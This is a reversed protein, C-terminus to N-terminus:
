SRVTELYEQLLVTQRRAEEIDKNGAAVCLSSGIRSLEDFGYGAGSGKMQHGLTALMAYDASEIASWLFILDKRRRELYGPVLAQVESPLSSEKRRSTEPPLGGRSHEAIARLLAAKRIPKTLHATCGVSLSKQAEERLAHASLALVPVPALGQEREWDRIARTASYGDMVPMQVDMLVLDYKSSQFKEVAIQGNEAIDLQLPSGDAYARLLYINDEADEAVLVRLPRLIIENPRDVRAPEDQKERSDDPAVRFPISFFFTSGEGLKSEVSITGGMLEVLRQSITLGLGTGGYKRTISPDVQIFRAFVADLKDEPIGIGTDIVSFRVSARGNESAAGETRVLVGGESTFKLANGILNMLIQRLRDPDGILRSPVTPAMDAALTLGRSRARVRMIDLAKEVVDKAEFPEEALELRGAEVKSLDLVDNILNLLKAGAGQFIAVYKRQQENLPTESLLDAMAIISNMPTRIEHSMMALFESRFANAAQERAQDRIVQQNRYAKSHYRVRAVLEAKDPLKVLYDNAGTLFARSKVKPDDETSLLIIPIEATLPNSRFLRILEIGDLHLMVLDQLIITPKTEAAVAVARRADACYHVRIAKDEALLRRVAEGVIPQDDVLLVVVAPEITEPPANSGANL